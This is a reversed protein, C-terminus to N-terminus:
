ILRKSWSDANLRQTCFLFFGAFINIYVHSKLIVSKVRFTIADAQPVRDLGEVDDQNWNCSSESIGLVSGSSM